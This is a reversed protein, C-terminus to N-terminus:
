TPQKFNVFISNRGLELRSKPIIVSSAKYRAASRPAYSTFELEGFTGPGVMAPLHKIHKLVHSFNVLAFHEQHTAHVFSYNKPVVLM